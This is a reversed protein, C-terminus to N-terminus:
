PGPKFVSGRKPEPRELCPVGKSLEEFIILDIDRVMESLQQLCNLLELHLTSSEESEKVAETLRRIHNQRFELVLAMLRPHHTIAEEALCSNNQSLAKHSILMEEALAKVLVMLEEKGSLSFHVGRNRKTEIRFRVDREILDNIKELIDLIRILGMAYGQEEPNLPQRLLRTLYAVAAKCLADMIKEQRVMNDLYGSDNSEFTRKLFWLMRLTGASIRITEKHALGIAVSPLSLVEERLFKPEMEPFKKDPWVWEIFRSGWSRFPLFIATMIVNFFAHANAVQFSVSPTLGALISGFRPVFPFFLITGGLKSFLHALAVRQAERRSGGSALLATFSTGVNSGLILYIADTLSILSQEALVMTIGLVAASSHILFTFVAATVIALLPFQSVYLLSRSFAPWQQLPHLSDGIIKLGLFLFGFGVLTQGLRYQRDNRSFFVLPAGLGVILLSIETFKLAILQATVSTGIDAGLIVPMSQRLNIVAANTLGVLIVTTATSSQFLATIIVGVLVGLFPRQSISELLTRLKHGLIKQLGERMTQIGYLLIGMGGLFGFIITVWNVTV